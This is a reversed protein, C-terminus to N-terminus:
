RTFFFMAYIIEAALLPILIALCTYFQKDTFTGPRDDILNTTEESSQLNTM